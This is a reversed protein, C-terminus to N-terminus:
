RGGVVMGESWHLALHADADAVTPDSAGDRAEALVTLLEWCDACEELHSEIGARADSPLKAGLFELLISENPHKAEKVCSGRRRTYRRPVEPACRPGQAVGRAM